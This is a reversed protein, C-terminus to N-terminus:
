EIDSVKGDVFTVKMKPYFYIRKAGLTAQREPPGLMAEVEQPTMGQRLEEVIVGSPYKAMAAAVEQESASTMLANWAAKAVDCPMNLEFHVMASLREPSQHQFTGQGRPISHKLLSTVSVVVTGDTAKKGWQQQEISTPQILEGVAYSLFRADDDTKRTGNANFFVPAADTTGATGSRGKEPMSPFASSVKFQRTGVTERICTTIPLGTQGKPIVIRPLTDAQLALIGLIAISV